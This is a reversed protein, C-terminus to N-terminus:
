FSISFPAILCSACFTAAFYPLADALVQLVMMGSLTSRQEIAPSSPREPRRRRSEWGLETDLLKERESIYSGIERIINHGDWWRSAGGIVIILPAFWFLLSVTQLPDSIKDWLTVLGGYIAVTALIVDREVSLQSTTRYEIEKRLLEFEKLRFATATESVPLTQDEETNAM